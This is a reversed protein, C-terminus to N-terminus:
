NPMDSNSGNQFAQFGNVEWVFLYGQIHVIVPKQQQVGIIFPSESGFIQIIDPEFNNIIDTIYSNITSYETAYTLRKYAKKIINKEEPNPLGYISIKNKQIKQISNCNVPVALGITISECKILEDFMADIWSLNIKPNNSFEVLSAQQNYLLYLIRM